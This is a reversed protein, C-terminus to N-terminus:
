RSFRGTVFVTIAYASAVIVLGVVATTIIKKAKEVETENGQSTLWLYGAYVMLVFFITGVLTLAANVIRGAVLEIDATDSTGAIDSTTQLNPLANELNGVAQISAPVFLVFTVLSFFLAIRMLIIM